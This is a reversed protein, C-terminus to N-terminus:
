DLSLDHGDFLSQDEPVNLSTHDIEVPQRLIQPLLGGLRKILSGTTTGTEEIAQKSVRMESYVTGERPAMAILFFGLERSAEVIRTDLCHALSEIHAPELRPAIGFREYEGSQSTRLFARNM